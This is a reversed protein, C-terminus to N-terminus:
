GKIREASGQFMEYVNTCYEAVLQNQTVWLFTFGLDKELTQLFSMFYELQQNHLAYFCEDLVIFRRLNNKVIYYIRLVTSVVTQVAGSCEQLLNESVGDNLYLEVTKETGRVGTKIKVSFDRDPFVHILAQDILQELFRFGSDSVSDFIQQIVASSKIDLSIKNTIDEHNKKMEALERGQTEISSLVLAHNSEQRTLFNNIALLEDLVNM